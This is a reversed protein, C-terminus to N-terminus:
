VSAAVELEKTFERRATAEEESLACPTTEASTEEADLLGRAMNLIYRARSDQANRLIQYCTWLALFPEDLNAPLGSQLHPLIEKVHEQARVPDNQALSVRALGALCSIAQGTHQQLTLAVQYAQNAEALRNQEVLIHGLYRWADGQAARDGQVQAILLARLYQAMAVSARPPAPALPALGETQNSPALAAEAERLDDFLIQAMENVGTLWQGMAPDTEAIEQSKQQAMSVARLRTNHNNTNLDLARCLDALSEAAFHDAAQWAGALTAYWALRERPPLTATPIENALNIIATAHGKQILEDLRQSILQIAALSDKAQSLHYAGEPVDGIEIYYRAILRHLALRRDPFWELRGLIYSCVLDHPRYFAMEGQSTLLNRRELRVIAATVTDLDYDPFLMGWMANSLKVAKRCLVARELVAQETDDLAYLIEGLLFNRSPLSRGLQAIYARVRAKRGLEPLQGVGSGQAWTIFFKLFAANGETRRQLEIFDDDELWDLGAERILHHADLDSLGPLPEVYRGQIFPPLNRSVLILPARAPQQRPALSEFFRWISQDQEVWQVDDLCLTIQNAVLCNVTRQIRADVPYPRGGREGITLFSQLDPNGLGALSCALIELLSDLDTNVGSYFTIWLVPCGSRQREIALQAALATKGTGAFGHIVALNQTALQERYLALEADRGVFGIISPLPECSSSLASAPSEAATLLAAIADLGENRLEYFHTRGVGLTHQITLPNTKQRFLRHLVQYRLYERPNEGEENRRLEEVATEVRRCLAAALEDPSPYPHSLQLGARITPHELLRSHRVDSPNRLNRLVALVEERLPHTESLM